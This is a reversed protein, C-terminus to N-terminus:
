NEFFNRFKFADKFEFWKELRRDIFGVITGNILACILTGWYVGEFHMFGFFIFSLIVALVLSSIDYITKVNQIKFNFRLSFQKVFLEYAEPPLYTHFFFAVGILSFLDGFIFFIIQGAIGFDPIFGVLFIMLDLILGDIFATIFSLFFKARFRRIVLCLLIILALQFVYQSMGLTFWPWFESVKVFIIYAPAVVMSMGFNARAMMAIGLSMIFAGVIFSIETFFTKKM